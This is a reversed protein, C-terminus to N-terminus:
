EKSLEALVRDQTQKELATDDKAICYCIWVVIALVFTIFFPLPSGFQVTSWWGLVALCMGLAALLMLFGCIHFFRRAVLRATAVRSSGAIDMQVTIWSIIILLVVVLEAIVAAPGLIKASYIAAITFAVLLVAAAAIFVVAAAVRRLTHYVIRPMRNTIM